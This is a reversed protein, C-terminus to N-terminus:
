GRGSIPAGPRVSSVYDGGKHETRKPDKSTTCSSPVLSSMLLYKFPPWCGRIGQKQTVTGECLTRTPEWPLLATM